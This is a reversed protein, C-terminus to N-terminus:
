EGKVLVVTRTIKLEAKVKICDKRIKDLLRKFEVQRQGLWTEGGLGFVSATNINDVYCVEFKFGTTWSQQQEKIKVYKGESTMYIHAM